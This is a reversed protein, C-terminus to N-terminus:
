LSMESTNPRPTKTKQSIYEDNEGGYGRGNEQEAREEQERIVHGMQKVFEVVSRTQPIYPRGIDIPIVEIGHRAIAEIWMNLKEMDRGFCSVSDLLIADLMGDAADLKMQLLAPREFDLGSYGMDTYVKSVNYGREKAFQLVQEKQRDAAAQKATGM